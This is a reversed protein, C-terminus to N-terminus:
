LADSWRVCDEGVLGPAGKYQAFACDRRAAQELRHLEHYYRAFEDNHERRQREAVLQVAYDYLARDRELRRELTRVLEAPLRERPPRGLMVKLPPQAMQAPPQRLLLGLSAMFATSNETLGVLVFDRRLAHRARALDGRGLVQTYECPARRAWEQLSHRRVHPDGAEGRAHEYHWRSLEREVPDRLLTVLRCEAGFARRQLSAYLRLASHTYCVDCRPGRSRCCVTRNQALALQGLREAVSTGGVKFFKLFALPWVDASAAAVVCLTLLAGLLARM